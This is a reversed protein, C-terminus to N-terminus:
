IIYYNKYWEVFRALGEDIGIKPKFGLIKTSKSIDAYTEYMDGPQMPLMNIKAKKGLKEELISIFNLLDVPKNNGLNFIEYSNKTKLSSIIGDVIDDIYTFDRKMDGNNYVNISENNVIKNTFKFYAMDPRGWPGYVTFFRLGTIPIQYLHHYSYAILENAVKTAGYFSIPKSVDDEVSFPIKKNGGYVSSSSAFVYNDITNKRAMELINTFGELNSKQYIFPNTISYRVGAQAALHCIISIENENFIKILSDRDCLDRHYFSFNDYEELIKTRDWKLDQSYYDCVNDLGVVSINKELLKKVVHFGIFGSSGSVFIIKNSLSIKESKNIM